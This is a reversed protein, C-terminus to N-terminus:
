VSNMSEQDSHTAATVSQHFSNVTRNQEKATRSGLTPWVMSTNERNNNNSYNIVGNNKDETMGISGEVPLGTWMKINDMWATRPRGRKCAGPMTGQVIEKELFSGQKRM